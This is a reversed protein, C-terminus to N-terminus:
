VRSAMEVDVAVDILRATSAGESDYSIQGDEGGDVIADLRYVSLAATRERVARKSALLPFGHCLRTTM